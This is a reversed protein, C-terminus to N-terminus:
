LIDGNKRQKLIAKTQWFTIPTSSTIVSNGTEEALVRKSPLRDGYKYAGRTIEDRLKKYLTIYAFEKDKM